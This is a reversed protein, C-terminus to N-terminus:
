EVKEVCFRQFLRTRFNLLNSFLLLKWHPFRKRLQFLIRKKSASGDNIIAHTPDCGPYPQHRVCSQWTCNLQLPQSVLVAGQSQALRFSVYCSWCFFGVSVPFTQRTSTKKVGVSIQFVQLSNTKAWTYGISQRDAIDLRKPHCRPTHPSKKIKSSSIIFM